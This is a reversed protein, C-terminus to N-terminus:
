GASMRPMWRKRSSARRPSNVDGIAPLCAAFFVASKRWDYLKTMSASRVLNISSRRSPFISLVTNRWTWRRSSRSVRSTSISPEVPCLSSSSHARRSVPFIDAISVIHLPSFRSSDYRRCGTRRERRLEVFRGGAPAGVPRKVGKVILRAYLPANTVENAKRLHRAALIGRQVLRVDEVHDDVVEIGIGIQLIRLADLNAVGHELAGDVAMLISFPRAFRSAATEFLVRKSNRRNRRRRRKPSRLITDNRKTPTSRIAPSRRPSTDRRKWRSRTTMPSCRSSSTTAARM